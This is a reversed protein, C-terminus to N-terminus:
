QALNTPAGPVFFIGRSLQHPTRIWLVKLRTELGLPQMFITMGIPNTASFRYRYRMMIRCPVASSVDTYLRGWLVRWMVRNNRFAYYDAMAM